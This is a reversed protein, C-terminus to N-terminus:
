HFFCYLCCCASSRELLTKVPLFVFSVGSSLSTLHFSASETLISHSFDLILSHNV